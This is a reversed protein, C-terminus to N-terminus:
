ILTLGRAFDHSRPGQVSLAVAYCRVHGRKLKASASTFDAFRISPLRCKLSLQSHDIVMHPPEYTTLKNLCLTPDCFFTKQSGHWQVVIKHQPHLNSYLDKFLCYWLDHFRHFFEFIFTFDDLTFVRYFLSSCLNLTCNPAVRPSQFNVLPLSSNSFTIVRSCLALYGM